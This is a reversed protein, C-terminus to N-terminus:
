AGHKRRWYETVHELEKTLSEEFAAEAGSIYRQPVLDGAYGVQNYLIIHPDTGQTRNVGRGPAQLRMWKPLGGLGKADPIQRAAATWGSKAWGVRQVITAMYRKLAAGDTVVVGSKRASIGGRANRMRQHMAGYDFAIVDPNVTGDVALKKLMRQAQRLQGSKMLAYFKRAAELGVEDRIAKYAMSPPKYVRGIDRRVAAQGLAKAYKSDGSFNLTSESIAEGVISSRKAGMSATASAAQSAELDAIPQTATAFYRGLMGARERIMRGTSKNSLKALDEFLQDIGESQVALTMYM